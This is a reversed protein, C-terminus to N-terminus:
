NLVVIWTKNSKVIGIRSNLKKLPNADHWLYLFLIRTPLPDRNELFIEFLIDEFSIDKDENDITFFFM